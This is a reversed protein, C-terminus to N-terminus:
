PVPLLIRLAVYSVPFGEPFYASTRTSLHKLLPVSAIKSITLLIYETPLSHSILCLSSHFAQYPFAALSIYRSRRILNESPNGLAPLTFLCQELYRLELILLGFKM